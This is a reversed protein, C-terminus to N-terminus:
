VWCLLDTLFTERPDGQTLNLVKVVRGSNWGWPSSLDQFGCLTVLILDTPSPQNKFFIFNAFSCGSEDLSFFFSAWIFESLFSLNCGVGCFYPDCSVATLLRTVTFCAALLFLHFELFACEGLVSERLFLFRVSLDGSHFRIM